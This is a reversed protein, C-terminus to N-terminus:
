PAARKGESGWPWDAIADSGDRMNETERYPMAASAADLHDRTFAIPGALRERDNSQMTFRM